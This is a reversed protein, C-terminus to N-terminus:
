HFNDGSSFGQTVLYLYEQAANQSDIGLLFRTRDLLPVSEINNKRSDLSKLIPVGSISNIKM